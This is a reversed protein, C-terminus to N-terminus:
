LDIRSDIWVWGSLLLLYCGWTVCSASSPADGIALLAISAIALLMGIASLVYFIAKAVRNMAM